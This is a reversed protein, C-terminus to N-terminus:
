PNKVPKHEVPTDVALVSWSVPGSEFTGVGGLTGDSEIRYAAIKGSSEGAAYLFRGRSEITFSRPTKETPTQGLSTIRGSNQDIAFGAISDHGRNSVYVFRGDPTMECRATANQSGDVGEPLTSMSQIKKLTAQTRDVKFVGVSDGAENSVYAWRDSPHLMIHRPHDENATSVFPPSSATLYGTQPNFQFQFIRNAGTHSVFVMQNSKDLAIGHAKEATAITQMATNSISGHRGLTHVTIKNSQYYATILFRGNRDPLLYAPDEGGDVVSIPDLQGNAPDIRFSALQGTSRFSAFLTKRDPSVCLIAPEAPCTIESRRTLTGFETDREFTVIRREQLLSVFLWSGSEPEAGYLTCTLWLVSTIMKLSLSM